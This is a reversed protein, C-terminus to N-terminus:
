SEENRHVLIPQLIGHEKISEKLDNVTQGDIERLMIKSYDIKNIAIEM